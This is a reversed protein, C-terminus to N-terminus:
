SLMMHVHLCLNPHQMQLSLIGFGARLDGLALPSAFVSEGEFDEASISGSMM